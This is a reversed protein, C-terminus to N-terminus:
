RKYFIHVLESTSIIPVHNQNRLKKDNSWIRVDPGLLLALAFYPVDGADPSIRMAEAEKAALAAWPALRIRSSIRELVQDFKGAELSTKAAIEDRHEALEELLYAPAHLELADEFLLLFTDNPRILASFLVNADVILHMRM